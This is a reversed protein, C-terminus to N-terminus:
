IMSTSSSLAHPVKTISFVAEFSQGIGNRVRATHLGSLNPYFVATKAEEVVKLHIETGDQVDKMESEAAYIPM